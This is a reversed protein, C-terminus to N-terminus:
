GEDIVEALRLLARGVAMRAADPSPKELMEAIQQYEFRLFVRHVILERDHESLKEMGMEFQEEMEQRGAVEEPSPEPDPVGSAELDLPPRRDRRRVEDLIRNRVARCAYAMAAGSHEPNFTKESYLTQLLSEQVFDHTDMRARAKSPIFCHAYRLLPHYYRRYLAERAESDGSRAKVMLLQSSEGDLLEPEPGETDKM